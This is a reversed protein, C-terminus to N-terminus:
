PGVKVKAGKFAAAGQAVVKSQAGDLTLDSGASVHANGRATVEVSKAEVSLKGAPCFIQVDGETAAMAVGSQPQGSIGKPAPLEVANKSSGDKAFTGVGGVCTNSKDSFALKAKNGDDFIMRHGSRSRALRINNKGDANDEPPVDVSNWVGGVIVPARIDGGLFMVAVMDNVEPLNYVGFQKGAMPTALEAWHAEDADGGPLWPLKVKIRGLEQEDKNATVIGYYVGGLSDDARM